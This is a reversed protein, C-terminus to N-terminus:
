PLRALDLLEKQARALPTGVLARRVDPALGTAISVARRITRDTLGCREATDRSFSWVSMTDTQDAAAESRRDGGRKAEPHLREYVEKRQALFVARDLPNLEHRVLNEDIERLRAAEDSGQYVFAPIDSWGLLEAARLRHAGAILRYTKATLRRVEIPQRLCGVEAINEALLHAYAEDVARLRDGVDVDSLAVTNLGLEKMPEAMRETMREKM